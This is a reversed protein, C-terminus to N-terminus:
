WLFWVSVEDISHALAIRAGLSTVLPVIMLWVYAVVAVQNSLPTRRSSRSSEPDGALAPGRFHLKTHTHSILAARPQGPVLEM